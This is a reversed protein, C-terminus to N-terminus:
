PGSFCLCFWGFGLVVCYCVLFVCLRARVLVFWLRMLVDIVFCYCCGFDVLCLGYRVFVMRDCFACECNCM